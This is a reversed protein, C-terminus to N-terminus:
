IFFGQTKTRTIYYLFYFFSLLIIIQIGVFLTTTKLALCLLFTPILCLFIRYLKKYPIKWEFGPIVIFTTMLFYFLNSLMTGVGIGILGMKKILVINLIIGIIGAWVKLTTLIYTKKSLHYQITTYDTLSLFFASLAFYPLLIYANQYKSNAFMTIIEPAYIAIIIIIPISVLFYYGTLKSLVPRIDIKDEYLNIIRPYAAITIIAFLTMLIPFTMNYAVGVLGAEKLGYYHSTIFKNSQNIAWLSISAIAIPTGYLFISKVMAFNPLEFRIYKLINSQLLLLIDILSISIAMAILISASGLNYFKLIFIALSITLIQNIITSITFAGPKIQARLVQFLLARIAVPIVLVLIFIFLKPSITFYELFQQKFIFALLYMIILNSGLILMLASLYHPIKDSLQNQRFFRLGSLGVWDSFLICLFSLIALAMTYAGYQSPALLNTYLPIIIANGLLGFLKSPAYKLMDRFIERIPTAVENIYKTTEKTM